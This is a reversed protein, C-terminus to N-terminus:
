ELPQYHSFSSQAELEATQLCDPSLCGTTTQPARPCRRDRPLSAQLHGPNQGRSPFCCLALGPWGARVNHIARTTEHLWQLHSHQKHLQSCPSAAGTRSPLRSAATDPRAPSSKAERHKCHWQENPFWAAAKPKIQQFPIYLCEPARRCPSTARGPLQSSSSRPSDQGGSASGGRCGGRSVVLGTGGQGRAGPSPWQVHSRLTPELKERGRSKGTSPSAAPAAKSQPAGPNRWCAKREIGRGTSGELHTMPLLLPPCFSSPFRCACPVPCKTRPLLTHLQVGSNLRTSQAM